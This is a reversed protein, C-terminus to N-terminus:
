LLNWLRQAQEKTYRVIEETDINQLKRDKVILKGNSIVHRVASPRMAYLFHGLFNNENFDTLHNYDLVILNNDDDGKFDNIKLYNHNNRLQNYIIDLGPNDIPKGAFYAAQASRIMDSHMGDTGLIIKDINLGTRTFFGVNNNLNSEPNQVVYAKSNKLINRENENIHIAHGLITKSSDLMGFDHLREVVRKNHDAECRTQDYKDEAVHIHVGSDYKTMLDAAKKMTEDGVTFSAHLGVLGQNKQLYKETEDLGKQAIEIGDRDSIEYCLLHSIGVEDFVEALIDMSNEIAFPSAHHDIIFTSGNLACGIATAYASARISDKNLKKDLNWWVYQLIELFNGPNKAAPPMGTALGSYAHHHGVVFSKAVYMGNCDIYNENKPIDAVFSIGKDIGEEVAINVKEFKFSIPNIYTANKLYLM